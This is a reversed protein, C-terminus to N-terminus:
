YRENMKEMIIMIIEKTIEDPSRNVDIHFYRKGDAISDYAKVQRELEEFAVEQKREYIVKPDATLIFYIDPKPIFLQALKAIGLSGGFRYRRSDVLLDDYYRDFIVLSSKIKLPLINKLWGFNYQYVFYALKIYSKLKSYPLYRHPDTIMANDTSSTKNVIPKLHFYYQNIFLPCKNIENIITSKGSGDAGLFCITLAPKEFLRNMFLSIKNFIYKKKYTKSSFYSRWFQYKSTIKEDNITSDLSKLYSLYSAIDTNKYAKKKIYYEIENSDSVKFFKKGSVDVLLKKQLLKKSEIGLLDLGKSNCACDLEIKELKTDDYFLIDFRYINRDITYYNVLFVNYTKSFKKVFDLMKEKSCEVIFDIDDTNNYINYVHHLLAYNSIKELIEFFQNIIKKRM